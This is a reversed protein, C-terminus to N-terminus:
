QLANERTLRESGGGRKVDFHLDWRGPMHFMMGEIRYRGGGLAKAAPRYNMGHRHEPMVADVQLGDIAEAGRACVVVEMAFHSGIVIKPPLTRYALRSQASEITKGGPLEAVCGQAQVTGAALAPLLAAWVSKLLM